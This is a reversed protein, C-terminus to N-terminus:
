NSRLQLKGGKIVAVQDGEIEVPDTDGLSITCKGCLSPLTEGALIEVAQANGDTEVIIEHTNEDENVVDVAQAAMTGSVLALAVAGALLVHKVKIRWQVFADV